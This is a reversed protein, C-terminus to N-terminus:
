LCGMPLPESKLAKQEIVGECAVFDMSSHLLGWNGVGLVTRLLVTM